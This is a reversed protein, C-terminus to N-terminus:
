GGQKGIGPFRSRTQLPRPVAAAVQRMKIDRTEYLRDVEAQEIRQRPGYYMLEQFNGIRASPVVLSLRQECRTMTRAPESLVVIRSKDLACQQM